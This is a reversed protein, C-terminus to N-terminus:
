DAAVAMEIAAAPEEAESFEGPRARMPVGYTRMIARRDTPAEDLLAFRLENLLTRCLQNVTARANRLRQRAAQRAVGSQHFHDAALTAAEYLAPLSSEGLLSTHGAATAQSDGTLLTQAMLLWGQRTNPRPFTAQQLFGYYTLIGPPLHAHHVQLRLRKWLARIEVSLREIEEDVTHMANRWTAEANTKGARADLFAQLTPELQNITGPQILRPDSGNARHGRLTALTSQLLHIRAPDNTPQYYSAM